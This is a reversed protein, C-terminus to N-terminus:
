QQSMYTWDVPLITVPDIYRMVGNREDYVDFSVFASSATAQSGVSGLITIGAEVAQGVAVDVTGLGGYRYDHVTDSVTIYNSGADKVFGGSISIVNDGPSASIRVGHDSSSFKERIIHPGPVPWITTGHEAYGNALGWIKEAYQTKCAEEDLGGNSTRFGGYFTLAKLTQEEWNGSNWDVPGYQKFLDSLYATGVLIQARPDDRYQAPPNFGLMPSYYDWIDDSVQMLGYCHIGGAGGNDASSDFSSETAALAALLYWPIGYRQGAEQFYGCLDPPIMAVSAVVTADYNQLLWTVNQQKETFGTGAESVFERMLDANQDPQMRYLSILYDRLREYKDAKVLLSDDLKDYTSTVTANPTDTVKTTRTYFYQYWGQITQAEVLLHVQEIDTYSSPEKPLPHKLVTRTTWTRVIYYFYPHLASAVADAKLDAPVNDEVSVFNDGTKMNKQSDLVVNSNNKFSWWLRVAQITGWDLKLGQDSEYADDL